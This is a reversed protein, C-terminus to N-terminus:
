YNVNAPLVALSDSQGLIASEGVEEHVVPAGCPCAPEELYHGGSELELEAFECGQCELGIGCDLYVAHAAYEGFALDNRQNGGARVQLLDRQAKVPSDHVANASKQTLNARLSGDREDSADREVRCSYALQPLLEPSIHV